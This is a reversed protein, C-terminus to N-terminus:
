DEIHDYVVETVRYYKGASEMDFGTRARLRWGWGTLEYAIFAGLMFGTVNGVMMLALEIM